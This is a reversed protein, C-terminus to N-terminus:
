THSPGVPPQAQLGDPQGQRLSTPLAVLALVSTQEAGDMSCVRHCLATLDKDNQSQEEWLQGKCLPGLSRLKKARNSHTM